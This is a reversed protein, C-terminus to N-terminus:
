NLFIQGGDQVRLLKLVLTLLFVVELHVMALILDKGSKGEASAVTLATPAINKGPHVVAKVYGGTSDNCDALATNYFAATKLSRRDGTGILVGQPAEEIGRIVKSITKGLSSGSGLVTSAITELLIRKAEEVVAHPLSDYTTESVFQGLEQTLGM